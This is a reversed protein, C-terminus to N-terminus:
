KKDEQKKVPVDVVELINFREFTTLMDSNGVMGNQIINILMAKSVMPNMDNVLRLSISQDLGVM